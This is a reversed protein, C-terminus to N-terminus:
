PSGALDVADRLEILDNQLLPHLLRRLVAEAELRDRAIADQFQVVGPQVLDADEDLRTGAVLFEGLLRGDPGHRSAPPYIVNREDEQVGAVQHGVHSLRRQDIQGVHVEGHEPRRGVQLVAPVVGRM